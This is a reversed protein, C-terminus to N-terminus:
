PTALRGNSLASAMISAATSSIDVSGHQGAFRADGYALQLPQECHLEAAADTAGIERYSQVVSRMQHAPGLQLNCFDRGGTAKRARRMKGAGETGSVAQGGPFETV